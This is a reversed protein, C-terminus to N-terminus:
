RNENASPKQNLRPLWLYLLFGAVAAAALAVSVSIRRSTLRHERLLPVGVRGGSTEPEADIGARDVLEHRLERLEIAIDKITQYRDEPDKALCRRVIRKLQDRIEPRFQSISPVPERIIRNLTDIADKGEFAKHGTVAEFLICGFSFIDSRQDIE